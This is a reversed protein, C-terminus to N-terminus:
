DKKVKRRAVAETFSQGEDIMQIYSDKVEKEKIKYADISEMVSDYFPEFIESDFEHGANKKMIQIAQDSSMSEKYVRKMLLASYVDAISVIRTYLHIGNENEEERGKRKSPYGEGNMREHHELAVRAVVDEIPAGSAMATKLEEFGLVTHTKMIEYEDPTFAGPKNLIYSPVCTKGADHYLGCRAILESEKKSIKKKSYSGAISAAFMAVSASHDYLTSDCNIMRSLTGLTVESSLQNSVLEATADIARNAVYNNIGGRVVMQSAGSLNSFVELVKPDLTPDEELVARIKQSRVKNIILEFKGYDSKLVCVEVDDAKQCATWMQGLLEESLDSPKIFEVIEDGVRFFISFNIVDTLKLYPYLELSIPTFRKKEKENLEIVRCRKRTAERIVFKKAQM